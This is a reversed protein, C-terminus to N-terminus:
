DINPSDIFCSHDATIAQMTAFDPFFTARALQELSMLRQGLVM